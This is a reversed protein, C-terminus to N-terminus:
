RCSMEGALILREGDDAMAMFGDVMPTELLVRVLSAILEMVRTPQAVIINVKFFVM